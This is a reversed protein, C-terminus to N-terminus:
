GPSRSQGAGPVISANPGTKGDERRLRSTERLYGATTIALGAVIVAARAFGGVDRQKVGESIGRLVGSPLTRLAYRREMQLGRRTGAIRALVAKSLGEVYCRSRFYGWTERSEPVHHRVRARPEYIWVREPWMASARLCFETDEARAAGILDTGDPGLGPRSGGAQLFVDKRFSMNAGIISRVASRQRPMGLFTCGVIWLFEEPFWRPRGRSWVPELHGGVGLVRSNTYARSLEQLWDPEAAADDDLMAIISGVAVQIASNLAGSKGKPGTSDVLRVGTVSQRLRDLLVPNHDIAVITERPPHSQSKVSEIAEILLPWREETYACIVVSIDPRDGTV